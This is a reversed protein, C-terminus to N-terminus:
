RRLKPICRLASPDYWIWIWYNRSLGWRFNLFAEVLVFASLKRAYGLRLLLREPEGLPRIAVPDLLTGQGQVKTVLALHREPRFYSM